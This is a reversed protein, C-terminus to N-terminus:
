RVGRVMAAEQDSMGATDNSGFSRNPFGTGGPFAMRDNM